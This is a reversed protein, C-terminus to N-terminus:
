GDVTDAGTKSRIYGISCGFPTDDREGALRRDVVPPLIDPDIADRRPVDM